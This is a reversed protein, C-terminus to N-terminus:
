ASVESVCHMRQVFLDIISDDIEDIRQRIDSLDQM